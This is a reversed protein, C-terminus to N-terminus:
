LQEVEEPSLGTAKSISNAPLGLKKLEIAISRKEQNRGELHGEQRGELRGELHGQRREQLKVTEIIGMDIIGGTIQYILTDFKRNIETNGIFIINKLFELFSLIRDKDYKQHLLLARAIMSREEGLAEESLKKELLAKQCAAVILAFINDMGLLQEQSHDFIHYSRYSFQISTDLVKRCYESPRAQSKDGTYVVITAVPLEYRDTIRYNYQWARYAFQPDNGGEVEVNLLILQPSGDKLWVKVLLDAERSGGKRERDPVITHLEKDLMQFGKSFDFLDDADPYLFRLLDVFNEEFAGKLLEDNKRRPAKGSTTSPM